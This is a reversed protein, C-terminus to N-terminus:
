SGWGGGGFAWVARYMASRKVKPIGLATMGELFLKDADAKTGLKLKYRHDHHLAAELADGYPSEFRWFFRPISAGDFVFKAPVTDVEGSPRIFRHSALTRMVRRGGQKNDPGSLWEVLLPDPFASM